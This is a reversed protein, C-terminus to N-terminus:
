SREEGEKVLKDFEFHGYYGPNVVKYRAAATQTKNRCCPCEKWQAPEIEEFYFNAWSECNTDDVVGVCGASEGCDSCTLVDPSDYPDAAHVHGNPCIYWVTGEFSM